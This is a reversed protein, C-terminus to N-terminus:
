LNDLLDVNIEVPNKGEPDKKIQVHKLLKAKQIDNLPVIEQSSPKKTLLSKNDLRFKRVLSSLLYFTDCNDCRIRLHRDYELKEADKGCLYCKTKEWSM